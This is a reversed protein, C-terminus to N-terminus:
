HPASAPSALQREFYRICNTRRESDTQFDSVLYEIHYRQDRAVWSILQEAFQGAALYNAEAMLQNRSKDYVDGTSVAIVLFTDVPIGQPDVIYYRYQVYAGLEGGGASVWLGLLGTLAYTAIRSEIESVPEYAIREVIGRALFSGSPSPSDTVPTFPNQYTFTKQGQFKTASAVDIYDARLAVRLLSDLPVPLLAYDATNTVLPPICVSIRPSYPILTRPASSCAAIFVTLILFIIIRTPVLEGSLL